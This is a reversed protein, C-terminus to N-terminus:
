AKRDHFPEDAFHKGSQKKASNNSYFQWGAVFLLLLVIVLFPGM